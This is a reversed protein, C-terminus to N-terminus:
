RVPQVQTNNLEIKDSAQLEEINHPLQKVQMEVTEKNLVLLRSATRDVLPTQAILEEPLEFDFEQVNMMTGGKELRYWSEPLPYGFHQYAAYTAVRGRPTRQIFGIQLLYPEYVDEITISEEGISASITEIGVPGGKFQEILSTMLKHDIHDLGYSDVQLLELAEQTSDMTIKGDGRVQAYDRVRKLLRNAIRPTG